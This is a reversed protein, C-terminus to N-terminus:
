RKRKKEQKRRDKKERKKKEGKKKKWAGQQPFHMRESIFWGWMGRDNM